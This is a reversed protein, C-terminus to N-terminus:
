IRMERRNSAIALGGGIAMLLAGLWILAILPTWYLRVVWSSTEGTKDGLALYLDGWGLSHLGVVTTVMAPTAFKRQSSTVTSTGIGMFSLDFIVSRQSYNAQQQDVERAMTIRYPGLQTSDGIQMLLSQEVRYSTGVMGLITVALGFHALIRGWEALTPKQRRWDLLSLLTILGLWLALAAGVGALIPTGRTTLGALFGAAVAAVFIWKLRQILGLIESQRWALMPGIGVAVVLPVMLPVFTRVFYPGGISVPKSGLADLILPYLTAVLITAAASALLLNNLVMAGERSIPAFIPGLKLKPARIAYLLLAGGILGGLLILIYFGREPDVAFAHVSTLVGSRVLFTGLLSLGFTVIALLITWRKLADRIMVVRLSHILATGVLWPMFAANEVPDWFWWGGWGLTYYAWYSGLAIGLTLFLWSALAWPRLWRAWIPAVQNEILAAVAFAFSVSFGVYGLYLLPPHFALGPDQLIPNLGMGALPPNDLRIFPNSTLLIFGYFGASVLGHVGLVRAWFRPPLNRGFLAIAAGYLVLILLWLLMSGEHNGWVATVKYLLPAAAASHDAVLLVSFDSLVFARTLAVFSLAVLALQVVAAFRSIALEGRGLGYVLQALSLVAALILAYHGIEIFM